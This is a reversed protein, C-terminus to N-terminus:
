VALLAAVLGGVAAFSGAGLASAGASSTSKAASNTDSTASAQETPSATTPASITSYTATSSSSSHSALSRTTTSTLLSSTTDGSKISSTSSLAAEDKIAFLPSWSYVTANSALMINIGYAKQPKAPSKVTWSYTLKSNDYGSALTDVPVLTGADAGATLTINVPGDVKTLVTWKIEVTSGVQVVDGRSPQYISDFDKHDDAAAAAACALAAAISVHM